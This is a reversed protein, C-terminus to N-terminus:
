AKDELSVTDNGTGSLPESDSPRDRGSLKEQSRALSNLPTSYDPLKVLALLLAAIWFVHEHTLLGILALVMVVQLQVKGTGHAMHEPLSHLRLYILGFSVVVIILFVVMASMLWDSTGPVTIFPPLTHPAAPNMAVTHDMTGFGNPYSRPTLTTLIWQTTRYPDTCRM